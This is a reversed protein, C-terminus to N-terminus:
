SNCAWYPPSGPSFRTGHGAEEKGLGHWGSGMVRGGMDPGWSQRKPELGTITGKGRRVREKNYPLVWRTVGERRRGLILVVKAIVHGQLEQLSQLGSLPLGHGAADVMSLVLDTMGKSSFLRRGM